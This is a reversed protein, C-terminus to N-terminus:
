RNIKNVKNKNRSYLYSSQRFGKEANERIDKAQQARTKRNRTIEDFKTPKTFITNENVFERQAIINNLFEEIIMMQNDSFSIFSVERGSRIEIWGKKRLCKLIEILSRYLKSPGKDKNDSMAQIALCVEEIDNRSVEVDSTGVFIRGNELRLMPNLKENLDTHANLEIKVKSNDWLQQSKSGLMEFVARCWFIHHVDYKGERSKRIEKKRQDRLFKEFLRVALNLEDVVQKQRGIVALYYVTEEIRVQPISRRRVRIQESM